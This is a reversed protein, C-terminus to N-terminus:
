GQGARTITGTRERPWDPCAHGTSFRSWSPVAHWYTTPSRSWHPTAAISAAGAVADPRGRRWSLAGERQHGGSATRCLGTTAVALWRCLYASRVVASFSLLLKKKRISEAYQLACEPIAISRFEYRVGCHCIRIVLAGAGQLMYGEWAMGAIRLWDGLMPDLDPHPAWEPIGECGSQAEHGELVQGSSEVERRPM